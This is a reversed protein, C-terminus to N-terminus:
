SYGKSRGAPWSTQTTQRYHYLGELQYCRVASSRIRCRARLTSALWNLERHQAKYNELWYLVDQMTPWREPKDRYIGIQRYLSDIAKPLLYMIGEGLYYTTTTIEIIQKLHTTPDAGPAPILPDYVCGDRGSQLRVLVLSAEIRLWSM